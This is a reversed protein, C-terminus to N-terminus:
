EFCCLTVLMISPLMLITGQWSAVGTWVFTSWNSSKEWRVSAPNWSHFALWCIRDSIMYIYRLSMGSGGFQTHLTERAIYVSLSSARVCDLSNRAKPSAKLLYSRLDFNRMRSRWPIQVTEFVSNCVVIRDARVGNIARLTYSPTM